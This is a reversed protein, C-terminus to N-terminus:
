LCPQGSSYCCHDQVSHVGSVALMLQGTLPGPDFTATVHLVLVIIVLHSFYKVWCQIEEEKMKKLFLKYKLHVLVSLCKLPVHPTSTPLSLVVRLGSEMLLCNGTKNKLWMVCIHHKPQAIGCHILNNTLYHETVHKTPWIWDDWVANLASISRCKKSSRKVLILLTIKINIAMKKQKFVHCLVYNSYIDASKKKKIHHFM